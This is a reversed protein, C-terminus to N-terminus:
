KRSNLYEQYENGTYSAFKVAKEEDSLNWEIKEFYSGYMTGGSSELKISGHAPIRKGAQTKYKENDFDFEYYIISYDSPDIDVDSNNKLINYGFRGNAEPSSTDVYKGVILINENKKKIQDKIFKFFDEDKMRENLKIDSLSEDWMGTKKAINVKDNPFTAISKSDTVTIVGDGSQSVAIWQNEGFSVKFTGDGNEDISYSESGLPTVAEFNASPFVANISDLQNGNVYGVFKDIFAEVMQRNEASQTESVGNSDSLKGNKNGCSTMGIFMLCLTLLYISIKKM